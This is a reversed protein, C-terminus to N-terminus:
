YSRAPDVTYYDKRKSADALDAWALPSAFLITGTPITETTAISLVRITAGTVTATQDLGDGFVDATYTNYDTKATIKVPLTSTGSANSTTKSVPVRKIGNGTLNRPLKDAKRIAGITRQTAAIAGTMAM